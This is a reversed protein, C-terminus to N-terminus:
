RPILKYLVQNKVMYWIALISGIHVLTNLYFNHYSPIPTNSVLLVFYVHVIFVYLSAQGLPILLWGLAKNFVSWYHTLLGYAIIYLALNNVIRGIGLKNKQFALEYIAQFLKPDIISLQPWPWFNTNPNNFAIFTFGLSSVVALTLISRHKYGSFYQGIADRHFGAAMCNLFLLQWTLVPFALEFRAGTLRFHMFQNVIYFGWSLILLWRTKGKYMIYLAAPAFGMLVVYLGIVQFQHPGIKLLLAQILVEYWATSPPPYLPYAPSRGGPSMWHTVEYVDVFPLLGLLAISLIVAINVRYLQFARALLKQATPIFGDNYLKKRYVIGVVLGSLAVFGEASSILGIREWAFMALLSFYELHVTIVVLMVLGRLFDIRLDRVSGNNPYAFGPAQTSVM